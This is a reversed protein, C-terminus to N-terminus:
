LIGERFTRVNKVFKWAIEGSLVSEASLHVEMIKLLAAHSM